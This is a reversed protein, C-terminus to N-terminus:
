RPKAIIEEIIVESTLVNQQVIKLSWFFHSIAKSNPEYNESIPEHNQIQNMLESITDHNKFTQKM